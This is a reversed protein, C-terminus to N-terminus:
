DKKMHMYKITDQVIKDSKVGLSNTKTFWGTPESLTKM